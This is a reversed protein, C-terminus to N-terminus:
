AKWRVPFYWDGCLQNAVLLCHRRGCRWDRVCSHWFATLVWLPPPAAPAAYKHSEPDRKRDLAEQDRDHLEKEVDEYSWRRGRRCNRWAHVM